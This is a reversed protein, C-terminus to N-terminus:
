RRRRAALLGGMGLLAAAGPAPVFVDPNFGNESMLGDEDSVIYGPEVFGDGGRPGFGNAAYLSFDTTLRAQMLSETAGGASNANDYIGSVLSTLDVDISLNKSGDIPRWTQEISFTFVQGLQNFTAAGLNGTTTIRPTQAGFQFYHYADQRSDSGFSSSITLDQSVGDFSGPNFNRQILTDMELRFSWVMRVPQTLQFASGMPDLGVTINRMNFTLHSRSSFTAAASPNLAFDNHLVNSTSAQLFQMANPRGPVNAPAYATVQTGASFGSGNNYTATQNQSVGGTRTSYSWPTSDLILSTGSPRDVRRNRVLEVSLNPDVAVASAAFGALTLLCTIRVLTKSM